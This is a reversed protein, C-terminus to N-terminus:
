QEWFQRMNPLTLVKALKGGGFWIPTEGDEARLAVSYGVVVDQGGTAFRPRVLVGTGRLCRIFEAEDRSVVSAERVMRALITRPPEARQERAIRELEARTLGPMGRGERG